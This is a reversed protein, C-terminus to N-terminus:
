TDLLLHGAVAPFLFPAEAYTRRSAAPSPSKLPWIRFCLKYETVLHILQQNEQEPLSFGINIKM